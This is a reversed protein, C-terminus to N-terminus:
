LEESLPSFSTPMSLREAARVAVPRRSRRGAVDREPMVAGGVRAIVDGKLLLRRTKRITAAASVKLGPTYATGM